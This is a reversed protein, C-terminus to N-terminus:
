GRISPISIGSRSNQKPSEKLTAIDEDTIDQVVEVQEVNGRIEKYRARVNGTQALLYIAEGRLDYFKRVPRGFFELVVWAVAGAVFSGIAQLLATWM